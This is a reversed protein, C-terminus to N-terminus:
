RVKVVSLLNSPSVTISVIMRVMTGLVLCALLLKLYDSRLRRTVRAGIQAGTASGVALLLALVLDVTRNTSAQMLTVGASTFLLQFLETGIAMHVPVCLAYVLVPVMISGGGVGMIAALVGVVGCLFFPTLVSHRVGSHPFYVQLPLRSLVRAFRPAVSAPRSAGARLNRVSEFFMYGSLIGLVVIYFLTIIFDANGMLRLYKIIQVGTAAGTLGGLLLIAGLKPDVNGLRFHAAAGSSSAAVIQCSGSAAAVTPPIGIMMLIPTLLFGGGVGLLGSLFGVCVGVGILLLFNISVGAVPLFVWMLRGCEVQL